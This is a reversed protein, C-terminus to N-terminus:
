VTETSGTTGTSDDTIVQGEELIDNADKFDEINDKLWQYAKKINMSEDYPLEYTIASVYPRFDETRETDRSEQDIYSLVSISNQRGPTIQLFLIRHYNTTVGDKQKKTKKLGMKFIREIFLSQLVVNLEACM